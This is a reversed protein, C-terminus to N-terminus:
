RDIAAITVAGVVLIHAGAWLVALYAAVLDAGGTFRRLIARVIAAQTAITEAGAALGHRAAPDVAVARDYAPITAAFRELVAGVTREIAGAQAGAAVAVAGGAFAGHATGTVTHEAVETAVQQALVVQFVDRVTGAVARQSAGRSRPGSEPRLFAPHGSRALPQVTRALEPDRPESVEGRAARLLVAAPLRAPAGLM